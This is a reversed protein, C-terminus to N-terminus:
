IISYSCTKSLVQVVPTHVHTHIHTYTIMITPLLLLLLLLLLPHLLLTGLSQRKTLPAHPFRIGSALTPHPPELLELTQSLRSCLHLILPFITSGHCTSSHRQAFVGRSCSLKHQMSSKRKPGQSFYTKCSSSSM